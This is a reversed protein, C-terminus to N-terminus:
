MGMVKTGSPILNYLFVFNAMMRFYCVHAAQERIFEAWSVCGGGKASAYEDM